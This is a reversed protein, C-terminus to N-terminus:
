RCVVVKEKREGVQLYYVGPELASLDLLGNRIEVTRRNGRLDCVLVEGRAEIHVLGTTPNPYIRLYDSKVSGISLTDDEEEGAGMLWRERNPLVVRDAIEQLYEAQDRDLTSYFDCPVVPEEYITEFIACAVLYSGALNPHVDNFSSHLMLDHNTAYHERFCEGAPAFCVGSLRAIRTVSDLIRQQTVLYYDYDGEGDGPTIGNSIEYLCVKAEPSGRHLVEILSRVVAAVSDTAISGGASEGTGPQLVVKDWRESEVLRVVEGSAVMEALGAGGVTYSEVSVRHGKAAAINEFLTPMDNFYTLSNGVFLVREQATASLAAVVFLWALLTKKM